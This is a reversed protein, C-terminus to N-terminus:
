SRAAPQRLFRSWCALVGCPSVTWLRLSQWRRGGLRGLCPRRVSRRAGCAKRRGANLWCSRKLSRSKKARSQAPLRAAAPQQCHCACLKKGITMHGMGVPPHSHRQHHRLQYAAHGLRAIGARGVEAQHIKRIGKCAMRRLQQLGQLVLKRLDAVPAARDANAHHGRM